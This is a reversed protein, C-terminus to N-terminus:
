SECHFLRLERAEADQQPVALHPPAMRRMLSELSQAPESSSLIVSFESDPNEKRDTVLLSTALDQEVAEM